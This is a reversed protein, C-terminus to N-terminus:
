DTGKEEATLLDSVNENYIQLVSLFVSDALEIESFDTNETEDSDCGEMDEIKAEEATEGLSPEGASSHSFIANIARPIMGSKTAHFPDKEDGMMTYTKGTGTQGYAFVTANVGQLVAKTSESV